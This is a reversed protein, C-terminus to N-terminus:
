LVLSLTASAEVGEFVDGLDVVVDTTGNLGVVPKEGYGSYHIKVTQEGDNIEFETHSKVRKLELPSFSIKYLVSKGPLIEM